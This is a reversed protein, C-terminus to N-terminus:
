VAVPIWLHHFYDISEKEYGKGSRVNLLKPFDFSCFMEWKYLICQM